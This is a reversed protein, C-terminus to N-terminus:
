EGKWLVTRILGEYEGRCLGDVKEQTKGKEKGGSICIHPLTHIDPCGMTNREDKDSMRDRNFASIRSLPNTDRRM